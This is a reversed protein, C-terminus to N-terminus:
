DSISAHMKFQYSKITLLMFPLRELGWRDLGELKVMKAFLQMIQVSYVVYEVVYEVAFSQPCNWM